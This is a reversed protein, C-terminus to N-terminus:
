GLEVRIKDTNQINTVLHNLNRKLVVPQLPLGLRDGGGDLGEEPVQGLGDHRVLCVHLEDLSSTLQDTNTQQILSPSQTM